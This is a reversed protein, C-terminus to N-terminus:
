PASRQALSAVVVALESPDVPKALHTTFGALLARTRDETRAYGTLAVAPTLGGREPPLARVREILGYGDEGPMGVDSVLVDPREAQLRELAEAATAVARAEAKCHTLVSVILDRADPEDDIVLVRIGDLRPPCAFGGAVLAEAQSRGPPASPPGGPGCGIAGLPLCVTFTTGRGVGDSLVSVHGGHLEILHKVIALGLGLGGTQRAPGGDEQRFREFVHPLFEPAIGQGSDEVTVVLSSGERGLRVFVLGGRPTFKVANALLNWFVQQLRGPDGLAPGLGRDLVAQLRVGKADAAPRVVDIAAELAAAVDVPATEIRLKGATIRSLDLLDDVLQAQARANREVAEIARRAQEPTLAGSNLMKAWGLMANLPTRLEHSVVALFEDKVRNAEAARRREHQALDFLQARELAQACVGAFAVFERRDDDTLRRTREHSLGVVGLARGSVALPLVALAEDGGYRIEALHPYRAEFAAMSEFFEPERTKVANVMPMDLALPIRRWREAVHPPYGDFRVVELATDGEVLVALLGRTADFAALGETVVSRAVESVTRLGALAALFSQLRAMRRREVEAAAEARRVRVAQAISQRLREPTLNGKAIYDLAGAKMIEVALQEDGQGTLVVIPTALGEERARRLVALGDSRPLRFDLLACDHGGSRLGELADPADGAEAIDADIGAARLARRVAARDVVDDDVVLLSLREGEPAVTM